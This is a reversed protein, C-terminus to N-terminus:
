FEQATPRLVIENIDVDAPKAVAGRGLKRAIDRAFLPTEAQVHRRLFMPLLALAAFISLPPPIRAEVSCRFVASAVTRPEVELTWIVEITAPVLHLVYVRTNRSYMVLHRPASKAALYHQILLHGGVSEVNISGFTGGERFTGGARHGPSCAQYDRDSLHALWGALDIHDVPYGIVAECSTTLTMM